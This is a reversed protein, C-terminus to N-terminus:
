ARNIDAVGDGYTLMFTDEKIYKEIRKVRAGTMAEEGTNVLTVNWDCENHKGYLQIKNRDGLNITFDNNM